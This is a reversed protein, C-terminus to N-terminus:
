WIRVTEGGLRNGGNAKSQRKERGDRKVDGSELAQVAGGSARVRTRGRQLKDEGDATDDRWWVVIRGQKEENRTDICLHETEGRERPREQSSAAGEAM